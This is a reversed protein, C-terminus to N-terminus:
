PRLRLGTVSAEIEYVRGTEIETRGALSLAPKAGHYQLPFDLVGRGVQLRSRQGRHRTQM